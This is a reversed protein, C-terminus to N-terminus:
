GVIPYRERLLDVQSEIREIDEASGSPTVSWNCHAHTAIPYVRVEGVAMRWRRRDGLHDRTLVTVLHDRLESATM